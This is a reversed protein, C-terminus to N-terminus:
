GAKEWRNPIGHSISVSIFILLNGVKSAKYTIIVNKNNTKKKRERALPSLLIKTETILRKQKSYNKKTNGGRNNPGM